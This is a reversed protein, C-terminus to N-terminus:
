SMRCEPQKTGPKTMVVQWLQMERSRFVAACWLMYFNWMRYFRDGYHGQIRDWNQSFNRRWALLTRDYDPGFNHVDEVVFLGEMARGIQALSPSLGGPFIYKDIWPNTRTKTLNDGITHLLSIGDDVLCANVVEMYTRFNKHGVAEFMGISLVRDFRGTVHRYDQLRLEVPLGAVSEEAYALQEKSLTIGVAAVGYKEAAYKVFSGFGCGIDLVRMGPQLSLKRCILELKAEQAEDLTQAHKWYGCTYVMRRDLMIKYLDNGLDYHKEIVRWATRISQLNFLRHKLTMLFLMRKNELRQEVQSRMLRDFFEDLADCDWWGDMYSEGIGLSGEYLFREYVRPDNVRMDWPRTGGVEVDAFALLNRLRREDARFSM